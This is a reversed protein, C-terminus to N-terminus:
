HEHGEGHVEKGEPTVLYWEAGFGMVDQGTTQGAGADKVYYYLPWGNYTVQMGGDKRQITGIMSADVGEGAAPNGQAMYPPWAQACADYCNSNMASDAKFMYLSRGSADTLYTGLGEATRTELRASTTAQDMGSDNVMETSETTEVGEVTSADTSEGGACASLVSCFLVGYFIRKSSSLLMMGLKHTTAKM